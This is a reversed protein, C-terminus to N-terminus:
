LSLRDTQKHAMFVDSEVDGRLLPESECGHFEMKNGKKIGSVLFIQCGRRKLSPKSYEFLKTGYHNVVQTMNKEEVITNLFVNM